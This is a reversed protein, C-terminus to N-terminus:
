QNQPCNKRHLNQLTRRISGYMELLPFEWGILLKAGKKYHYLGYLIILIEKIFISLGLIHWCIQSNILDEIIKHVMREIFIKCFDGRNFCINRLQLIWMLIQNNFTQKWKWEIRHQPTAQHWQTFKKIITESEMQVNVGTSMWVSKISNQM